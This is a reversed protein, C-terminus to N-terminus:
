RVTGFMFGISRELPNYFRGYDPSTLNNQVDRESASGFVNYVRLGGRFRYKKFRWPRSLSFDLTNVHSLRGAENRPGVFYQYENVSSWPFGSRLEVVVTSQDDHPGDADGGGVARPARTRM